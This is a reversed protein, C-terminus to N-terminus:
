KWGQRHIHQRDDERTWGRGEEKRQPQEWKDGLALTKSPTQRPRRSIHIARPTIQGAQLITRTPIGTSKSGKVTM